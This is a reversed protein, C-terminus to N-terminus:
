WPFNIHFREASFEARRSLKEWCLQHHPQKELKGGFASSFINSFPTLIFMFFQLVLDKSSSICLFHQFHSILPLTSLPPLTGLPWHLGEVERLPCVKCPCTESGSPAIKLLSIREWGIPPRRLIVRLISHQWTWIVHSYNERMQHNCPEIVTM